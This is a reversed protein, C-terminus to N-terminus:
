LPFSHTSVLSVAQTASIFLAFISFCAFLFSLLGSLLNKKATCATLLITHIFSHSLRQYLRPSSLSPFAACHHSSLLACFRYRHSPSKERISGPLFDSTRNEPAAHLPAPSFRVVSSYFCVQKLSVCLHGQPHIADCLTSLLTGITKLHFESRAFVLSPTSSFACSLLANILFTRIGARFHRNPIRPGRQYVCFIINVLHLPLQM